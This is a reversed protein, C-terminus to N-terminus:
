FQVHLWQGCVIGTDCYAITCHNMTLPYNGGPYDYSLGTVANRIISYDM